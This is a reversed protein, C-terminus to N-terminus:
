KRATNWGPTRNPTFRGSGARGTRSLEAPEQGQHFARLVLPVQHRAHRHRRSLDGGDGSLWGGGHIRSVSVGLVSNRLHGVHFVKHTNPQSHEVMVRETSRRARAMHRTGPDASRQGFRFRRGHTSPSISMATPRKSQRLPAPRSCTRPSRSPLSSPSNGPASAPAAAKSGEQLTRRARGHVALEVAAAEGALAHSIPRPWGGPAPFPFPACISRVARPAAGSQGRSRRHRHPRSEENEAIVGNTAVQSM